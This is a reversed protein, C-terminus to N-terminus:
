PLSCRRRSPGSGFVAMMDAKHIYLKHILGFGCTLHISSFRNIILGVRYPVSRPPRASGPSQSHARVSRSDREDERSPTRSGGRPSLSKSGGVPCIGRVVPTPQERKGLEDENRTLSGEGGCMSTGDIALGMRWWRWRGWCTNRIYRQAGVTEM